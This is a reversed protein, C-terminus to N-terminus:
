INRQGMDRTIKSVRPDPSATQQLVLEVGQAIVVGRGGPRHFCHLQLRSLVLIKSNYPNIPLIKLSYSKPHRPLMQM